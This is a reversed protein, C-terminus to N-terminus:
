TSYTVQAQRLHHQLHVLYDEVIYELTVPAHAGIKCTQQLTAAPIRQMVRVLHRNVVAWLLILTEWDTEQYGQAAVWFDQAYGPLELPGQQARIFRQHNNLASDVLHGLIEKKSWKDPAPKFAAEAETFKRLNPVAVTLTQELGRATAQATTEEVLSM